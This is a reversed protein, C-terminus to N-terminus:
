VQLFDMFADRNQQPSKTPRGLNARAGARIRVEMFAPGRTIKLRKMGEILEEKTECKFTDEYGMAKLCASFDVGFAGTPQAGVSDHVGNNLLIHKFNPSAVRAVTAVTGLHMLMAGDGDICFVQRSPQGTAIGLAIASAHGMSGVTLFDSSHDQGRSERLEFLERSAKGTSCVVADQKETHRAILDLASERTMNYAFPNDDVISKLTPSQYPEFCQRKILFAYPSPRVKMSRLAGDLAHRAGEISNPLVEFPVGVETLLSTMKKGQVLHQPEDQKGPEGRWGIMLLMPLEYVEPDCLSLLPNIANGFGSNQMYVVPINRTGLYYGAAIGIAAGENAALTHNGPAAHDHVYACFDKLLSDPVGTFFELRRETLMNFYEKPSLGGRSTQNMKKIEEM